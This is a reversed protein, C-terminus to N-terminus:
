SSIYVNSSITSAPGYACANLPTPTANPGLVTAVSGSVAVLSGQVGIQTALLKAIGEPTMTLACGGEVSFILGSATLSLQGWPTTLVWGNPSLVDTISTGDSAETYRTISGNAKWFTRAVGGSAWICTEGDKLAGYISADRTDRTAIICDRDGNKISICQCSANGKSPKAPRSAFGTQQWWEAADSDPTSLTSDGIQALIVNTAKSLYTTLIDKGIDFLQGFIERGNM